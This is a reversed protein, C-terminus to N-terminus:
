FIFYIFYKQLTVSYRRIHPIRRTFCFIGTRIFYCNWSASNTEWLGQYSWGMSGSVITKKAPLKYPHEHLKSNCALYSQRKHFCVCWRRKDTWIYKDSSVKRTISWLNNGLTSFHFPASSCFHYYHSFINGALYSFHMTHSQQCIDIKNKKRQM